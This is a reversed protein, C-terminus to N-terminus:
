AQRYYSLADSRQDHKVWYTAAQPKKLVLPDRGMMKFVLGLPTLIVYFIIRLLVNSFLWGIPMTIAMLLTYLPYVAGPIALGLVCIIPGLAAIWYAGDTWGFRWNCIFAVFPFGILAAISFQRLQRDDPYWAPKIM